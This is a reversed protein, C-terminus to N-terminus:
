PYEPSRYKETVAKVKFQMEALRREAGRMEQATELLSTELATARESSEGHFVKYRRQLDKLLRNAEKYESSSETKKLVSVLPAQTLNRSERMSTLVDQLIQEKSKWPAAPLQKGIKSERSIYPKQLSQLRPKTDRYVLLHRLAYELAKVNNQIGIPEIFETDTQVNYLEEYGRFKEPIEPQGKEKKTKEEKEEIPQITPEISSTQHADPLDDVQTMFFSDMGPRSSASTKQEVSSDVSSKHEQTKDSANSIPEASSSKIPPLPSSSRLNDNGNGILSNTGFPFDSFFSSSPGLTLPQKPIKPVHTNVKRKEKISIFVHPKELGFSKKHVMKIKLQQQFFNRLLSADGRRVTTLPNGHIVLEELSPFLAAPLLNEEFTIKNDALSLFRMNPLPPSFKQKLRKLSIKSPLTVKPSRTSDPLNQSSLADKPTCSNFVVHTRDPDEANPLVMYDMNQETKIQPEAKYREKETEKQIRHGRVETGDGDGEGITSSNTFERLDMQHLYPIESISNKDLNLHRLSKLNALSVFVSSDCINNDDLMLVELSPFMPIDPYKMLPVSMDPPLHQLGNGTLQLVRLNSIVGLQSVDDASLNNYSLDLVGLHPFDGPTVCIRRIGNMSLELERLAHFGCFAELALLNEAANIYAVCNFQTFEEEKATTLNKDSVDVSCLDGPRDVYHTKMLFLADLVNEQEDSNRPGSSTRTTVLTKAKYGRGTEGASTSCVM